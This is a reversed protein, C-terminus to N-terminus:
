YDKVEVTSGADITITGENKIADNSGNGTNSIILSKMKMLGRNWIAGGEATQSGNRLTMMELGAKTRSDLVRFLRSVGNADVITSGSGNGLVYVDQDLDIEGTTLVIPDTVLSSFRITDGPCAHKVAYRLSKGGADASSAVIQESCVNKAIAFQGFSTIGTLDFVIRNLPTAQIMDASELIAGWSDSHQGITRRYLGFFAADSAETDSLIGYGGLDMSELSSFTSNSGFNHVIWYNEGQENNTPATDPYRNLRTVIVQGNPYVGSDPFTMEVGEGAFIKVGGSVIHMASSTGGAFPGNSVVSEAPYAIHSNSVKDNTLNGTPENWQYYHVLGPDATLDKTIHMRLRIEDQDLVRNYIALEDIEGVYYRGGWWRDQWGIQMRDFALAEPSVNPYTFGRGNVYIKFADDVVSSSVVVHNWEGYNVALGPNTGWAWSGAYKYHLTLNPTTGYFNLCFQRDVGQLVDFITATELQGDEPKIWMSVSWESMVLGEDEAEAHDGYAALKYSSGPFDDPHCQSDILIPVDLTDAYTQGDKTITLTAQHRGNGAFLVKPNRINADDIYQPVPDFSWSWTAGDHNLISYDDFYFTDRECQGDIVNVTPQVEIETPLDEMNASYIGRSMTAIRVKGEKYFPKIHRIRLVAPLGTICAMWDDTANRYFVAHESTVYIGGDTGSIALIDTISEGDLLDSETNINTWSIGGDQTKWVKDNDNDSERFAIFLVNEDTHDVSMFVGDDDTGAIDPLGILETFNIGGDISKYITYGTAYYEGVYMVNANSKPIEIKTIKSGARGEFIDTWSVGFDISKYLTSGSGVWHINYNYPSVEIESEENTLYLAYNSNPQLNYSFSTEPDDFNDPMSRGNVSGYGKSIIKDPTPHKLASFEPEAGGFFRFVGDGYTDTAGITGNHYLSGVQADRNWGQDFSWFEACNIGQMKIEYSLLDSACKVIGGDTAVWLDDGQFLAEQLDSHGGVNSGTAALTNSTFGDTTLWKNQTGVMVVNTDADMMEIDWDYYGQGNNITSTGGTAVNFSQDSDVLLTWTLGADSSKRIKIGNKPDVLTTYSAGTFSYIVGAHVDSVTLRGGKNSSSPDPEDWGDDIQTWSLGGDTSRYFDTVNVPNHMLAFVVNPDDSKYKLDYVRTSTITTWTSGGNTTRYMGEPGGAIVINPNQSNIIIASPNMNWDYRVSTWTAGGDTTKMIDHRTGLYVIDPNTPHIQLEMYGGFSYNDSVSIWNDGGDVTKFVYGTETGCYLVDPSSLSQAIAYINAQANVRGQTEPVFTPGIVEWSNASRTQPLSQLQSRKRIWRKDKEYPDDPIDVFGDGNVGDVSRLYGLYHKLNRTHGTKSGLNEKQWLAYMTVVEKINPNAGYLAKAWDPTNEDVRVSTFPLGEVFPQPYQDQAGLIASLSM